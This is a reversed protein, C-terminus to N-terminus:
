RSIEKNFRKTQTNTKEFSDVGYILGLYSGNEWLVHITGGDDVKDVVGLTGSPVPHYPDDMHKCRVTTGPPYEKKLKAIRDNTFEM